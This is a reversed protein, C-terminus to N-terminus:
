WNDNNAGKNLEYYIALCMAAVVMLFIIVIM